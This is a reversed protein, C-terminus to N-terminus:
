GAARAAALPVYSLMGQSIPNTLPTMTPTTAVSIKRPREPADVASASVIASVCSSWTV